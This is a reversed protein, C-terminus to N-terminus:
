GLTEAVERTTLFLSGDPAKILVENSARARLGAAYGEQYAGRDGRRPLKNTLGVIMPKTWWDDRPLMPEFARGFWYGVERSFLSSALKKDIRKWDYMVAFRHFFRLVESYGELAGEPDDLKYPDTQSWDRDYHYRFFREAKYRYAAFTFSYYEKHLNITTDIRSQRRTIYYVIFAALLTVSGTIIAPQLVAPVM